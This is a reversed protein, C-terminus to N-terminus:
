TVHIVDAFANFLLAALLWASCEGHDFRVYAQMGGYNQRIVSIIRWPVGLCPFVTWPLIWDVSDHPNTLNILFSHLPLRKKRALLQLPIIVSVM